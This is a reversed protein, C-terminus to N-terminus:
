NLGTTVSQAGARKGKRRLRNRSPSWAHDNPERRVRAGPISKKSDHQLAKVPRRRVANVIVLVGDGLANPRVQDPIAGFGCVASRHPVACFHIEGLRVFPAFGIAVRCNIEEAVPSVCDNGMRAKPHGHTVRSPAVRGVSLALVYKLGEQAFFDGTGIDVPL